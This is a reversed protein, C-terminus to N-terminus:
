RRSGRSYQRSVSDGYARQDAYMKPGFVYARKPYATSQYIIGLVLVVASIGLFTTYYATQSMEVMRFAVSALAAGTHVAGLVASAIIVMIRDLAITVLGGVVAGVVAAVIIVVDGAGVFSSAIAILVSAGIPVGVLFLALYYLRVAVFGGLLGGITGFVVFAQPFDFFRAVLTGVLPATLYFGVVFFFLLRLRYGTLAVVLGAIAVIALGVWNLQLLFQELQAFTEAM